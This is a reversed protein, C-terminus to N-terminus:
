KTPAWAIINLINQIFIIYKRQVIRSLISVPVIALWEFVCLTSINYAYYYKVRSYTTKRFVFQTTILDFLYTYIGWVCIIEIDFCRYMFISTLISYRYVYLGPHTLTGRSANLKCEFKVTEMPPQHTKAVDILKTSIIIKGTKKKKQISFSCCATTTYIVINEGRYTYPMPNRCVDFPQVFIDYTRLSKFFDLEM